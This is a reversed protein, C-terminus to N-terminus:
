VVTRFEPRFEFRSTEADSKEMADSMLGDGGL